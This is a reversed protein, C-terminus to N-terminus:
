LKVRIECEECEYVECGVLHLDLNELSDVKFNCLGCEFNEKRCRGVHVESTEVTKSGFDCDECSYNNNSYHSYEGTFSHNRVCSKPYNVQEFNAHKRGNHINL